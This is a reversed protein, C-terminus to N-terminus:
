PRVEIVKPASFADLYLSDYGKTVSLSCSGAALAILSGSRSVSCVAPSSTSFVVEGSGAGGRVGLEMSQGVKISSRDAKVYLSYQKKLIDFVSLHLTLVNLSNDPGLYFGDLDEGTLVASDVKKIAVWTVGDHSTAPKAITGLPSIKILIPKELRTILGGETTLLKIELAQFDKKGVPTIAATGITLTAPIPIAGAPVILQIAVPRSFEDRKVFEVAVPTKPDVLAVIAKSPNLVVVPAGVSPASPVPTAQIPRPTVVVTIRNSAASTYVTTGGYELYITHSGVALTTNTYTCRGAILTCSGLIQDSQNNLEEEVIVTGNPTGGTSTLVATITFADLYLVSTPAASIVATSTEKATQLGVGVGGDQVVQSYQASISGAYNGDSAYEARLNRAGVPLPTTLELSCTTGSLTCTGLIIEPSTTYDEFQVVGTAGVGSSTVTATLILGAAQVFPNESSQMTTTTSGLGVVQVLVPSTSGAHTADGGYVATMNHSGVSLRYYFVTCAGSALTCSKIGTSGDFVEVSGTASSDSVTATFNITEYYKAGALDSVLSVTSTAIGVVQDMKTTVASNLADGGYEASIQHTGTTAFSLTESCQGAALTCSGIQSEGDEFIVLGTASSHLVATFTVLTLRPAPNSSSTLALTSIRAVVPLYISATATELTQNGLLTGTMLHNAATTPTYSYTCVSSALTCSGKPVRDEAIVVTGLFSGASPFTATLTVPTGIATRAPDAILSASSLSNVQHTITAEAGLYTDDGGFEAVIEHPGASLTSYTLSCTGAVLTCSGLSQETSEFIIEGVPTAGAGTVTATFTISAGFNTASPSHTLTVTPTLKPDNKQYIYASNSPLYSVDDGSYSAWVRHNGVTSAALHIVCSAAALTCSGIVTNSEYAYLIASGTPTPGAGSASITFDLPNGIYANPKSSVVVVASPYRTVVQTFAASTSGTHNTTPTFTAIVPYENRASWTYTISCASSSTTCTGILSGNVRFAISGNPNAQGAVTATLTVATNIVVPSASSTVTTTTPKSPAAASPAPYLSGSVIAILALAALKKM